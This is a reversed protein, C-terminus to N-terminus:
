AHKKTDIHVEYTINLLHIDNIKIVLVLLKIITARM